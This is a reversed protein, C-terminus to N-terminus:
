LQPLLIETTFFGDESNRSLYGNYREIINDIRVLGFGHGAGKTTRYRGNVKAKKHGLPVTNTFSMYLQTNKITIYIRIIGNGGTMDAMHQNAEIANDMINGIIICLDVAGVTLSIAVNADVVVDIGHSKALAIKSRLIADAMPNGTKIKIDLNTLDTELENLYTKIAVLEGEAALSKLTQIHSHYDHRWGRMEKHMEEVEAFHTSVLGHQYLAIRKDIIRALFKSLFM